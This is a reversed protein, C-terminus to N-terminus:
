RSASRACAHDYGYRHIKQIIVENKMGTTDPLRVIKEMDTGAVCAATGCLLAGAAGSSVMAAEAGVMKRSARAWPTM